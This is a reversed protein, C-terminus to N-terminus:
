MREGSRACARSSNQRAMRPSLHRRGRLVVRRGATADVRVVLFNKAGYNLFDTVDYSFPAYGSMNRGLFHGNLVVMCDRFVGDFEIRCGSASIARRSRSPGGTGASARRRTPGVWRSSATISQCPDNEFELEVAWDHPLDIARWKSDDFNERLARLPGRIQLISGDGDYGFDRRRTAPTGSIFGGDLTWSFGSEPAAQTTKRRCPRQAQAPYGRPRLRSQPHSEQRFRM